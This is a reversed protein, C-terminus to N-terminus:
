NDDMDARWDIDEHAHIEDHNPPLDTLRKRADGVVSGIGDHEGNVASRADPRDAVTLQLWRRWV